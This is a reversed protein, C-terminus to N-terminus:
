PVARAIGRAALLGYFATACAAAVAGVQFVAAGGSTEFISGGLPYGIMMGLGMSTFAISQVSTRLDEPAEDQVLKVMSLYWLGFSFAHLTQAALIIGKGTAVSLIMWRLMAASTCIVLLRRPDVAGLIRPAFLMITIECVVGVAWGLGIFDDGFGLARMHLGFYVDFMSHGVYHFATGILLLPLSSGVVYRLTRGLVKPQPPLPASPLRLTVIFGLFYVLSAVGLMQEPHHSGDLRGVLWACIAFGISGWVRINAFSRRREKLAAHAAADALTTIPSRFFCFAAMGVAAGVLGFDPLLMLVSAASGFAAIRLLGTRARFADAAIGWVSPIVLSGIPLLLMVWAIEDPSLGRDQFLLPAFPLIAGLGGFAFFYFASLETRAKLVRHHWPSTCRIM